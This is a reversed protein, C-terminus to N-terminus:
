LQHMGIENNKGMIKKDFIEANPLVLGFELSINRKLAVIVIPGLGLVLGPDIKGSGNLSAAWAVSHHPHLLVTHRNMGM